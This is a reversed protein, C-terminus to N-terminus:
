ALPFELHFHAGHKRTFWIKGQLQEVLLHVLRLGIGTPNELDFDKPLGIGNDEIKLLLNKESTYLEIKIRGNKKNHFAYKLSNTLLENVIIGLYTLMQIPLEMETIKTNIIATNDPFIDLVAQALKEFYAKAPINDYEDSMLLIEYIVRMSQMRSIASQLAPISETGEIEDAQLRLIGEIAAINNKIRHHVEKLLFEKEQLQRSIHQQAEKLQSIDYFTAVFCLPAHKSDLVMSASVEVTFRTGNKQIAVLEGQWRQNKQLAPIVGETSDDKEWFVTFHKGILEEPHKYGWSRVFAPNVYTLLGQLDSIAVAGISYEIAASKEAMEKEIRNSDTIDECYHLFSDAGIRRSHIQWLRIQKTRTRFHLEDSCFGNNQLQVFNLKHRPIDDSEILDTTKKECLEQRTYASMMCVMPNADLFQKESNTVFVGYPAYEIYRKWRQESEQVILEAHRKESIDIVSGLFYLPNNHADRILSANLIGHVTFGDRHIFRKELQFGEIEGMALLRQKKLNEELMDPHTIDSLHKGQLESKAYGLLNCYARNANVIKFDLSVQAIGINANEYMSRFRLESERLAETKQKENMRANFLKFAMKISADLVIIGSNKVVYGYSTIAETKEVIDPETHSSLFVIPIERINLIQRAAETGDIGSGLDIDMLILNVPPPSDSNERSEAEAIFQVAKEGSTACNVTYGMKELEVKQGLALIAEDEVLLINRKEVGM